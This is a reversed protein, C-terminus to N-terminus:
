LKSKRKLNLDHSIKDETKPPIFFFLFLIDMTRICVNSWNAAWQNGIIGQFWVLLKSHNGLQFWAKVCYVM